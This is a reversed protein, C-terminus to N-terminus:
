VNSTNLMLQCFCHIEKKTEFALEPAWCFSTVELVIQFCQYSKPKVEDLETVNGRCVRLKGKMKGQWLKQKHTRKKSFTVTSSMLRTLERINADLGETAASPLRDERGLYSSTWCANLLRPLKLPADRKKRKLFQHRLHIKRFFGGNRTIYLWENIWEAWCKRRGTFSEPVIVEQWWKQIAPVVFDLFLGTSCNRPVHM